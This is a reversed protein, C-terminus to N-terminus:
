STMTSSGRIRKHIVLYVSVNHIILIDCDSTLRHWNVCSGGEAGGGEGDLMNLCM